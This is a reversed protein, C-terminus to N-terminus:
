QWKRLPNTLAPILQPPFRSLFLLFKRCIASLVRLGQNTTSSRRDSMIQVLPSTASDLARSCKVDAPNTRLLSRISRSGHEAALCLSPSRLSTRVTNQDSYPQCTSHSANALLNASTQIWYFM